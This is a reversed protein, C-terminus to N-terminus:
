EGLTTTGLITGVGMAVRVLGLASNLNEKGTLDKTIVYVQTHFMYLFVVYVCWLVFFTHVTAAFPVVTFSAGMLIGLVGYLVSRYPKLVKLDLIIGSIAKVPIETIAAISLLVVVIDTTMGCAETALPGIYIIGCMLCSQFSLLLLCQATFQINKFMHLGFMDGIQRCKSYIPYCCSSDKRSDTDDTPNEHLDLQILESTSQPKKEVETIAPPRVNNDTDTNGVQDGTNRKVSKHSLPRYLSASVCCNLIIASQIIMTGQFGFEQFLYTLLPAGLFAGISPGSLAVALARSRLKDFYVNLMYLMAM